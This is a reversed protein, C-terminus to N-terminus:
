DRVERAIKVYFGRVHREFTERDIGTVAKSGDWWGIQNFHDADIKGLFYAV